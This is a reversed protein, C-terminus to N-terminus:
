SGRAAAREARALNLASHIVGVHTLAQPYNGLASGDTPDIEESFLGLPSAHALLAEYRRRAEDLRGMRTLLDVAWFGCLLFSGERGDLGDDARYRAVLPGDGLERLVADLTSVMRPDNPDLMGYLGITLVSADLAESGYSQTFSKKSESWGEKMVSAFIEDRAARWRALRPEPQPWRGALTLGRDVAVWCMTRSYVFARPGGRVEWIGADPERWRDCVRDVLHALTEREEPDLDGGKRVFFWATNLIEGFVDLQLQRYAGNGVRVPRAGGYGTLGPLEREALDREGRLGYMIQLEGRDRRLIRTLWSMFNGTEHSYGLRELVDLTMSTDRVWSFRYDWNRGGGPSEPLSTTPAAVMAGTPEYIMM